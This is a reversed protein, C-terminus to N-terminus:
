EHTLFELIKLNAEEPREQHLFHGTDPIVVKELGGTFFSDMKEFCELRRPRDRTGHLALTPVTVTSSDVKRQIDSMESDVLQPNVSHRYYNLAAEVVGPKKFTEKVKDLVEKPIDWEPSANRWWDEIFAYNNYAVTEGAFPMQFYYSHWTGRLYDFNYTEDAGPHSSAITVLKTVKEPGLIAAGYAANAGWDHGVVAARAEGLADILALIDQGLVATQYRGDVPVETPAYGRMFPAVGRFGSKALEPLLHRFSYAHDPFGHMCLVLPGQGEELYHFNVGNARVSDTKFEAM